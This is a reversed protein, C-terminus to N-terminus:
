PQRLTSQQHMFERLARDKEAILDFHHQLYSKHEDDNLKDKIFQMDLSIEKQVMVFPMDEYTTDCTLLMRVLTNLAYFAYENDPSLSQAIEQYMPKIGESLLQAM